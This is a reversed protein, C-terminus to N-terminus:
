RASSYDYSPQVMNCIEPKLQHGALTEVTEPADIAWHLWAARTM